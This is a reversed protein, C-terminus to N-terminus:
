ALVQEEVLEEKNSSVSLIADTRNDVDLKLYINQLHFKVTNVSVFLEEAITKNTKGELLLMFVDLERESLTEKLYTNVEDRNLTYEFPLM